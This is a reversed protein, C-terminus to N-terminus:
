APLSKVLAAFAEDPAMVMDVLGATRGAEGLFCRAEQERVRAAPVRRYRAVSGVFLEGIANVDAQLTQRAETSLPLVPYGDAKRAGYQIVTVTVGEKDLMRTLDAHLVIVGISGSYGTRPVTIKDAAAAIAYAASAATEDLIAWIPKQGRAAFISDTLDFLGACDGGPSDIDLAIARVEPNQLAALLNRRIANYGTMGSYPRLGMQRQVLTGCIEIIAVGSVVEYGCTEDAWNDDSVVVGMGDQDFARMRGDPMRVNLIGLRDALAAMIIEAKEPRIALPRNFLQQALHAFNTM